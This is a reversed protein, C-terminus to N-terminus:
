KNLKQLESKIWLIEDQLRCIRDDFSKIWEIIMYKEGTEDNKVEYYYDDENEEYPYLWMEIQSAIGWLFIRFRRM